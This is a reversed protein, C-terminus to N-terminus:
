VGFIEEMIKLNQSRSFKSNLLECDDPSLIADSILAAEAEVLFQGDLEAQFRLSPNIKPIGEWAITTGVVPMGHHIAELVKGKVGAGIELPALVVRSSSYIDSLDHVHGLYSINKTSSSEILKIADDTLNPGVVAFKKNKLNPSMENIIYKVALINPLHLFNGVFLFDYNKKTKQKKPKFEPYINSVIWKKTDIKSFIKKFLEKEDNTILVVDDVYKALSELLQMSTNSNKIDGNQILRRFELDVTDLILHDFAIKGKYLNIFDKAVHIEHLWFTKQDTVNSQMVNISSLGGTLIQVGMNRYTDLYRNMEETKLNWIAAQQTITNMSLIQVQYNLLLLISIIEHLRLYSGARDFMPIDRTVITVLRPNLKKIQWPGPNLMLPNNNGRLGNSNLYRYFQKTKRFIRPHKRLYRIFLRTGRYNLIKEFHM